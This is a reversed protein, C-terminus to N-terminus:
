NVLHVKKKGEKMGWWFNAAISELKNCLEQTLRFCNMTCASVAQLVSKALAEKRSKSLCQKWGQVKGRARELIHKFAGNKSRGVATSLGLYKENLAESQIGMIQKLEEKRETHCGKGFFISSKHLNVKQGSCAEYRHLVSQLAQFNDRTAELFVYIKIEKRVSGFVERSWTQMHASVEKLKRWLGCANGDFPTSSKWADEFMDQYNEHRKWMEEYQSTHGVRRRPHQVTTGLEIVLALHDSEETMIHYVVAHLFLDMLGASAYAKDLRVHVKADGERGNSWTYPYGIFGLDQLDCDDLCERFKIMQLKTRGGPGIYEERHAIENFDSACLWPLDNQAILYRLVSWTKDRLETHPEGYIGSFRWEKGDEKIIADMHYQSYPHIEVNVERRWLLALGGSRGRSGVYAGNAFGLSWKLTDM